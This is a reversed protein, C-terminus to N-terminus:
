LPLLPRSAEATGCHRDGGCPTAMPGHATGYLKASARTHGNTSAESAAPSELSEVAHADRMPLFGACLRASRASSKPDVASRPRLRAKGSRYPVAVALVYPWMAFIVYLLSCYDYYCVRRIKPLGM